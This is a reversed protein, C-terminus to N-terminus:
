LSISCIGNCGLLKINWKQKLLLLIFFLILGIKTRQLTSVYCLELTHYHLICLCLILFVGVYCFSFALFTFEYCCASGSRSELSLYYVFSVLETQKEKKIRQQNKKPICEYSISHFLSHFANKTYHKNGSSLQVIHLSHACSCNVTSNTLLFFSGVVFISKTKNTIYFIVCFIFVLM